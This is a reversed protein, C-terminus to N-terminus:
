SQKVITQWAVEVQLCENLHWLVTVKHTQKQPQDCFIFNFSAGWLQFSQPALQLAPAVSMWNCTSVLM